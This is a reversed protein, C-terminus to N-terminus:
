AGLKYVRRANDSFLRSCESETRAQTLFSIADVWGKFTAALTCKPWDSGFM